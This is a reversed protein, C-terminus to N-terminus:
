CGKHICCAKVQMEIGMYATQCLSEFIQDPSLSGAQTWIGPRGKVQQTTQPLKVERHKAKRM